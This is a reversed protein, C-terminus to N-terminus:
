SISARDAWRHGCFIFLLLVNLINKLILLSPLAYILSEDHM